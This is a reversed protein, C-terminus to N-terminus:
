SVLGRRVSDIEIDIEKESIRDTGGELSASGIHPLLVVNDMKLLESRIKPEHEFVDLGAGAIKKEELATWSKAM